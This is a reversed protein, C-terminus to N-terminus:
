NTSWGFKWWDHITMPFYDDPDPDHVQYELLEGVTTDNNRWRAVLKVLGVGPAFYRTYEAIYVGNNYNPDVSFTESTVVCSTFTGAPVDVQAATEEIVTASDVIFGNSGGSETWSSGETVPYKMLVRSWLLMGINTGGSNLDVWSLSESTHSFLVSGSYGLTSSVTWTDPENVTYTEEAPSSRSDGVADEDAGGKNSVCAALGAAVLLYFIARVMSKKV